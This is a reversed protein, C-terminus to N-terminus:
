SLPPLGCPAAIRLLRLYDHLHRTILFNKRVQQVGMEGMENAVDTNHLLFTIREATEEISRVLFGTIGDKVQLKIGGIAAGVVPKGKWMAETVTLAFGERLSKQVIVDAGRQLANVDEASIPELEPAIIHIDPDGNARERVQALIEHSEPDDSAIGGAFVLSCDIKRRVLECAEIVGIPDKFPDFRGVQLIVPKDQAIEYKDYTEKIRKEPLEKNKDSLPDISPPIIDQPIPLYQAFEPLSLIILDYHELYTNLFRWIRKNPHTLDIHCRWIWRNNGPPRHEILPIPQPDHIIVIDGELNMSTGNRRNIERYRDLMEDAIEINNGQLAKHLDKTTKFFLPSGKIVDWRTEIGLDNFLPILSHLMEAVGGGVLTSNVHTLSIQQLGESIRKLDSITENGVIKAYDTLKRGM